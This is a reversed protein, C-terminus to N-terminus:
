YSADVEENDDSGEAMKFTENTANLPLESSDPNFKKLWTTNIVSKVIGDLDNKVKKINGESKETENFKWDNNDICSQIGKKNKSGKLFYLPWVLNNYSNQSYGIEGDKDKIKIIETTLFAGSNQSETIRPRLESSVYREVNRFLKEKNFM